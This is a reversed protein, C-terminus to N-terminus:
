MLRETPKRINNLCATLTPDGILDLHDVFDLLTALCKVEDASLRAGDNEVAAQKLYDRLSLM